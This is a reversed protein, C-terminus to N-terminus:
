NILGLDNKIIVVPIKEIVNKVKEQEQNYKLNVYVQQEKIKYKIKYKIILRNFYFKQYKSTIKQHKKVM